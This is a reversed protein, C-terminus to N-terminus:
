PVIRGIGGCEGKCRGDGISETFWVAGASSVALANPRSNQDPLPIVTCAHTRLSLRGIGNEVAFWVSDRSVALAELVVVGPGTTFEEIRGTRTIHGIRNATQETFWIDRETGGALAGVEGGHTPVAFVRVKGGPLIKAVRDGDRQAAYLTGASDFAIQAPKMSGFHAANTFHGDRSLRGVSHADPLVFWWAADPGLLLQEAHGLQHPIRFVVRSGGPGIREIAGHGVVSGSPDDLSSTAWLTGDAGRAVSWFSNKTQVDHQRLTGANSVFGASVASFQSSMTIGRQHYFAGDELLVVGHPEMTVEPRYTTLSRVGAPLSVYTTPYPRLLWWIGAAVAMLAIAASFWLWSRRV